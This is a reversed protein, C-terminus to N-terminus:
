LTLFKYSPKGGASAASSHSIRRVVENVPGLIEDIQGFPTKNELFVPSNFKPIKENNLVKFVMDNEASHMYTGYELNKLHGCM